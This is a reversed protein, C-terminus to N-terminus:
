GVVRRRSVDAPLYRSYDSAYPGWSGIYSFAAAVMVWFAPWPHAAAPHYALLADTHRLAIVSVMCFLVGLVVSMVREYLHILNHGYIALLSQVAALLTAALWFPLHPFLTCLGFSGLINNVTYWGITSVYNLVAPVYGGVRGFSVRGIMLQPQGYVPGMAACLGVALAGLLNGVLIAAIAWGWPLGLSVPLFGLAYDAITLNCGLWLTFQSRASGHREAAAVRQVGYPEVALVREGYRVQQSETISM